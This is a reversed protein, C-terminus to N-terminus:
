RGKRTALNNFERAIWNHVFKKWGRGSNPKREGRLFYTRMKAFQAALFDCDYDPQEEFEKDLAGWWNGDLIYDPKQWLHEQTTLLDFLHSQELREWPERKLWFPAFKAPGKGLSQAESLDDPCSVSPSREESPDLSPEPAVITAPKSTAVQLNQTRSVQLPPLSQQLNQLNQLNLFYHNTHHRGRGELKDLIELTELRRLHLRCNRESQRSKKALTPVSPWCEGQENCWDALALLLLLTHPETCPSDWVATMIRISM